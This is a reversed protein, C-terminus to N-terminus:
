NAPSTYGLLKTPMGFAFATSEQPGQGPQKGGCCLVFFASMCLLCCPLFFFLCALTLLPSIVELRNLDGDKDELNVILALTICAAVVWCCMFCFIAAAAKGGGKSWRLCHSLGLLILYIWAPIFVVAWPKDLSGNLKLMICIEFAVRLGLWMLVVLLSAVKSGFTLDIDVQKPGNSGEDGDEGPAETDPKPANQNDDPNNRIEESTGQRQYSKSEGGNGGNGNPSTPPTARSPGAKFPSSHHGGSSGGGTHQEDGGGHSNNGNANGNNPNTEGFGEGAEEDFDPPVFMHVKSLFCTGIFSDILNIAEWVFVVAVVAEISVRSPSDLHAALLAFFVGVAVTTWLAVSTVISGLVTLFPRSEYEEEEDDSHTANKASSQKKKEGPMNFELALILLLAIALTIFLPIFVLAWRAHLKGSFKVCILITQVLLVTVLLIGICGAVIANGILALVRKDGVNEFMKLGDMGLKDYVERKNPDSLIEFASSAEQFQEEHGPNKDPHYM